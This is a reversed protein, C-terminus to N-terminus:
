EGKLICDDIIDIINHLEKVLVAEMFQTQVDCERDFIIYHSNEGYFVEIHYYDDTFICSLTYKQDNKSFLEWSVNMKCLLQNFFIRNLNKPRYNNISTIVRWAIFAVPQNLLKTLDSLQLKSIM